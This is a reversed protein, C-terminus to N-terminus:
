GVLKCGCAKDLKHDFIANWDDMLVLRKPGDLFPRLRRFFPRRKGVGNPAYLVVVRFEFSKVAVGAVVLRGGDDVFVLNVIVNLSRRVILSVGPSCSSGFASFVM